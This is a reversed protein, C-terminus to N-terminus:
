RKRLYHVSMERKFAVTKVLRIANKAPFMGAQLLATLIRPTRRTRIKWRSSRQVAPTTYRRQTPTWFTSHELRSFKRLPRRFPLRYPQKHHQPLLRSQRSIRVRSNILASIRETLPSCLRAKCTPVSFRSTEATWANLFKTRPTDTNTAWEAALWPM